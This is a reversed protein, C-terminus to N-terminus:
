GEIVVEDYVLQANENIFVKYGLHIFLIVTLSVSGLIGLMIAIQYKIAVVPSTGSLIQGTMMGPLSVIGMGMMYNITPLIASDFVSDLIDKIARKPTAGLMLATEILNRNSYVKDILANAALATGTMANGVLMGAIPIFYRPDYWPQIRVVVLLFYLLSTITGFVISVVIVSKLKKSIKIKLRKYVNHIAFMEMICIVIFTVWLKPEEFIYVLVYGTIILQITMRLSSIVLDKERPIGRYRLIILVIVVFVYASLMQSLGLNLISNM